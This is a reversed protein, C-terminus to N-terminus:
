AVLDPHRAPRMVDDWWTQLPSPDPWQVVTTDPDPTTHSRASPEAFEARERLDPASPVTM